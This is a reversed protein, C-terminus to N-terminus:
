PDTWRDVGDRHVLRRRYDGDERRSIVGRHDVKSLANFERPVAARFDANGMAFTSLVKVAVDVGDSRRGIFVTASAGKGLVDRIEYPGFPRGIAIAVM